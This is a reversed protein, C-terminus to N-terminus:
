YTGNVKRLVPAWHQVFVDVVFSVLAQVLCSCSCCGLSVVFLHASWAHMRRPRSGLKSQTPQRQWGTRELFSLSVFMFTSHLQKM